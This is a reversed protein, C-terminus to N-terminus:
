FLYLLLFNFNFVSDHITLIEWFENLGWVNKGWKYNPFTYWVLFWDLILRNGRYTVRGRFPIWDRDLWFRKGLWKLRSENLEKAKHHFRILFIGIANCLTSLTVNWWMSIYNGWAPSVRNECVNKVDYQRMTSHWM